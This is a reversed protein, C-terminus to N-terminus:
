LRFDNAHFLPLPPAYEAQLFSHHDIQSRSNNIFLSTLINMLLSSISQAISVPSAELGQENKFCAGKTWVERGLVHKREADHESDFVKIVGGLVVM